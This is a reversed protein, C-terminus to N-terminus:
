TSNLSAFILALLFKKTRLLIKHINAKIAKNIKNTLTKKSIFVTPSAGVNNKKYYSGLDADM